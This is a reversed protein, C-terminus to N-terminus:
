DIPFIHVIYISGYWNLRMLRWWGRFVISPDSDVAADMMPVM